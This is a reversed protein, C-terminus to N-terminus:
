ETRARAIIGTSAADEDPQAARTLTSSAQVNTRGIGIEAKPKASSDTLPVSM